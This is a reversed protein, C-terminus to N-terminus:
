NQSGTDNQMLLEWTKHEIKTSNLDFKFILRLKCEKQKRQNKKIPHRKNKNGM